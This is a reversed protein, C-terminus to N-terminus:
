HDPDCMHSILIVELEALHVFVLKHFFHLLKAPPHCGCLGATVPTGTPAVQVLRKPKNRRYTTLVMGGELTLNARTLTLPNRWMIEPLM